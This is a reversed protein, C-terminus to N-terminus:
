VLAHAQISDIHTGYREHVCCRNSSPAFSCRVAGGDLCQMHSPFSSTYIGGGLLIATKGGVTVQATILAIPFVFCCAVVVTKTKKLNNGSKRM